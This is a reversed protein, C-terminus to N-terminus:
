SVEPWHFQLNQKSDLFKLFRIENNKNDIKQGVIIRFITKKQNRGDVSKDLM